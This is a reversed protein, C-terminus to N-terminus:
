RLTTYASCAKVTERYVQETKEAVIPWNCHNQIFNRGKKGVKKRLSDDLALKALCIYFDHHDGAIFGTEGNDILEMAGDNISSVVPLGCSMAEALAMGFSEKYSPFAFIDMANLYLPTKDWPQFGTAVVHEQLKYKKILRDTKNRLPGDGVLLLRM